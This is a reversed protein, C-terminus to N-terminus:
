ANFLAQIEESSIEQIDNVITQLSSIATSNASISNTNASIASAANALTTELDTIDSIAHTHTANAKNELKADVDTETLLKSGEDQSTGGVYVNGQYWANGYWDLTHANSRSKNTIGNGVIHAYKNETDEINYKGQVHQNEGSAITNRGEAHSYSSLAKVYQGEAHSYAGSATTSHGEAHSYSSSAKTLAGEAHSYNGTATTSSGEAHSYMGTAINNSYNNFIEAGDFATVEIDDIIYVTGTTSKGVGSNNLENIAGVVTKDTTTLNDDTSRQINDPIFKEELQKLEYNYNSYVELTHEEQNETAIYLSSSSVGIFFPEGTNTSSGNWYINGLTTGVATLTYPVEDWIVTYENGEIVTLSANIHTSYGNATSESCNVTQETLLIDGSINEYFPKDKLNNWSIDPIFKEDIKKVECNYNAYSAVVHEGQTKCYISPTDIFFPEGTDPSSPVVISFNGIYNKGEEKLCEYKVGDWIVTYITNDIFSLEKFIRDSTFNIVQEELLIDGSINEYFPRDSLNNWSINPIYKEDLQKLEYNYNAYISLTHEGQTEAFVDISSGTFGIFFPEGTNPASGGWYLYKNGWPDNTATLTYPVGDWLVTYENGVTYQLATQVTTKYGNSDATSCDVTQEELLIDGTISEYFPKDTLNNWSIDPLKDTSINPIFKEDLQKLEYNYDSYIALTHEEQNETAIYLSSSSVGIFFPEGTNDSSGSWYLNGLYRSGGSTTKVTVKYPVCDWIVTYENGQTVALSANIYTYYGNSNSSSLNVPQEELLIDGTISEYFPKDTLNNWSIDPLKDTSINPIFKEDLQKLEYNYDSSYIAFTHEGQTEAFVTANGGISIFFPEGSDPGGVLYPNGLSNTENIVKYLNGDWIVIYENGLPLALSANITAIYANNYPNSFNVTREELLIDGSSNEYFPRDKLNNWSIDPLKDTSINPIFKPDVHKLEYNYNSSCIAFTHEGQTEAFIYISSNDINIFFPEGTNDSSGELYTNGWKNSTPTIKYPIGDWIVTYEEGTTFTVVKSIRTYYGNGYPKSCNVSQEELLINGEFIEYFPKDKLNNWSIDPIFKSDLQKLEYNYDSYIALTHNGQTEAAVYLSDSSVGIFFPEGTNPSSGGWYMNGLTNNGAIVKYPIGDWIVTYETGQTITLSFDINTCYTNGISENLNITQEELLVDGSIIEYFPKDELDDWSTVAKPIDEKSIIFDLDNVNDTGNGIKIRKYNYNDDEDYIIIEGNM